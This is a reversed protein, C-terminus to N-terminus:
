LRCKRKRIEEKDVLKDIRRLDNEDGQLVDTYITEFKKSLMIQRMKKFSTECPVFDYDNRVEDSPKIALKNSNETKEVDCRYAAEYDQHQYMFNINIYEPKGKKSFIPVLKFKLRRSLAPNYGFKNIETSPETGGVSGKRQVQGSRIQPRPHQMEQRLSIQQIDKIAARMSNYLLDVIKVKARTRTQTTNTIM